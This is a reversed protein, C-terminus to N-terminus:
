LPDSPPGAGSVAPRGAAAAVQGLSRDGRKGRAHLRGVAQGHRRHGHAAVGRRTSCRHRSSSRRSSSCEGTGVISEAREPSVM